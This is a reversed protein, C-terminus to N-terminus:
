LTDFNNSNGTGVRLDLKLGILPIQVTWNALLVRIETVMERVGQMNTLLVEM